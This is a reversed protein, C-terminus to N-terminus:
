VGVWNTCPRLEKTRRFFGAMKAGRRGTWHAFEPLLGHFRCSRMAVIEHMDGLHGHRLNATGQLARGRLGSIDAAHPTDCVILFPLRRHHRGSCAICKLWHGSLRSDKDFLILM